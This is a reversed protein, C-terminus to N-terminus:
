AVIAYVFLKVYEIVLPNYFETAALSRAEDLTGMWSLKRDDFLQIADLSVGRWQLYDVGWETATRNKNAKFSFAGQETQRMLLIRPVRHMLVLDAAAALRERFASGGALVYAADGSASESGVVLPRAIWVRVFPIESAILIVILAICLRWRTMVRGRSM